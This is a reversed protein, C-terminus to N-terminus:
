AKTPLTLHTYSVSEKDAAGASEAGGTDASHGPLAAQESREAQEAQEAQEAPEPEAQSRPESEQQVQARERASERAQAQEWASERAQAQEWVSERVQAGAREREAPLSSRKRTRYMSRFRLSARRSTRGTRRSAELKFSDRRNRHAATKIEPESSLGPRLPYLLFM